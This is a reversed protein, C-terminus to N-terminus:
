PKPGWARRTAEKLELQGTGTQEFVIRMATADTPACFRQALPRAYESNLVTGGLRREELWAGEEYLQVFLEVYGEGMLQFNLQQCPMGLPLRQTYMRQGQDRQFIGLPWGSVAKKTADFPKAGLMVRGLMKRGGLILHPEIYWRSRLLNQEPGAQTQQPELAYIQGRATEYQLSSLAPNALIAQLMSAYGVPLAYDPQHVYGIGLRKLEALGAKADASRYFDLLRPDLYSIMRRNAYYMDASKLTLVLSNEPTKTKLYDMLQYEPRQALKSEADSFLEGPNLMLRFGVYVMLQGAVMFAVFLVFVRGWGSWAIARTLFGAGLLAVCPLMVLLYRENRVMFDVGIAISAIVGLVYVLLLGLATWLVNNTSSGATGNQLIPLLRQSRLLWVAGLLALWFTFAYSEYAFLGKLVGYQLLAAPTGVGRNAAFYSLWELEPMAFVAPNDSILAGVTVSNNWYPWAAIPLAVLLLLVGSVVSGQAGRWGQQLAIAALTLPVFLVAQSHTWLALGLMAGVAISYRPRASDGGVVFALVLLLGAVPLADINSSELGLFYLPAALMLLVAFIGTRPDHLRGLAYVLGLTTLGFWPAVFRTLIPAAADGQWLYAAWLQAVYLPPHTWPGFFGSVTRATDIQPYNDLTRAYFVERAITAYELPDNQMLPFAIANLLMGACMLVALLLAIRFWADHKVAPSFNPLGYRWVLINGAILAAALWGRQAVPDQGAALALVLVALVGYLFPALALGFWAAMGQERAKTTWPLLASLRLGIVSALMASAIWGAWGMM